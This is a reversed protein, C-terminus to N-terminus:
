RSDAPPEILEVFFLRSEIEADVISTHIRVLVTRGAAEASYGGFHKGLPLLEDEVPACPSIQRNSEDKSAAVGTQTEILPTQYTQV